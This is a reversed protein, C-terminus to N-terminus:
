YIFPLNVRVCVGKGDPNTTLEYNSNSKHQKNLILLRDAIIQTARSPYEKHKQTTDFGKGNDKLEVSIRNEEKKFVIDLKGKYDINKFGHEISNELFPQLLMSPIKLEDQALNEDVKIEYEFKNNFRTKQLDLYNSLFLIEDEITALEDYTSELSQRMIKSFKSILSSVKSQNEADMSLTQISALANFFFHPNMRARNLRQETELGKFKNKLVSQRYFFIIVILILLAALIGVGLFKVRLSAIENKTNLESIKKENESKNYKQELENIAKSKENTNMSDSYQYMKEFAETANKYDGQRKYIDYALKYANSVSGLARSKLAYRLTSDINSIAKKYDGSRLFMDAKRYYVSILNPDHAGHVSNIISSDLYKEALVYNKLFIFQGATKNYASLLVEKNGSIKAFLIAKKIAMSTSDFYLKSTDTRNFIASYATSLVSYNGALGSYNKQAENIEISKKLYFIAKEVQKMKGFVGALYSYAKALYEKDGIRESSEVVRLFYVSASDLLDNQFYIQGYIFDFSLGYQSNCNNLQFLKKGETLIQKAKEYEGLQYNLKGEM